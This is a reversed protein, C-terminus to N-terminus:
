DYFDFEFASTDKSQISRLIGKVEPLLQFAFFKASLIKNEYYKAKENKKALQKRGVKDDPKISDAEWLKELAEYAVSAQYLLARSCEVLGFMRLFPTAHLLPYEPNDAGLGQFGFAAEGLANKAGDIESTM